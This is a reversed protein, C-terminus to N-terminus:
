LLKADLLRYRDLGYLQYTNWVGEVIIKEGVPPYTGGEPLVFEVGQSCCGEADAVFCSYLTDVQVGREKVPIENLTGAMRIVKGEYDKGNTVMDYLKGYVVMGSLGSIDVDVGEPLKTSGGCASLMLSAALLLVVLSKKMSM